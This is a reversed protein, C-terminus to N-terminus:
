RWADASGVTRCVYSRNGSDTLLDICCNEADIKFVNYNAEKLYKERESRTTTKIKETMKIRFPEIITKM